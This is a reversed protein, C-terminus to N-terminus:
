HLWSAASDLDVMQLGPGSDLQSRLFDNLDGISAVYAPTAKPADIPLKKEYKKESEMRPAAMDRIKRAAKHSEERSKGQEIGPVNAPVSIERDDKKNKNGMRSDLLDRLEVQSLELQFTVKVSMTHSTTPVATVVSYCM